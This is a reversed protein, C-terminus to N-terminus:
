LIDIFWHSFPVVSFCVISEVPNERQHFVTHDILMCFLNVKNIFLFIHILAVILYFKMAM